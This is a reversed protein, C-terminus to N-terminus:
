GHSSGRGNWYPALEAKLLQRGRHIRSKVTGESLDLAAAIELYSLGEIERLILPARYLLDVAALARSVERQEENGLAEAQPTTPHHGNRHSFFPLILLKFRRERREHSHVLNTAIRYLYAALNGEERYGDLHQYLRVFTEQAFDEARDRCGTLRNLYGVLGDQYREVLRAFALQDQAKARLLLEADTVEMM